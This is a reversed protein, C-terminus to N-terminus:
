AAESRAFAILTEAATSCISRAANAVGVIEPAVPHELIDLREARQEFDLAATLAGMSGRSVQQRTQQLHEHLVSLRWDRAERELKEFRERLDAPTM